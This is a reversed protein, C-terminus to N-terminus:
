AFVPLQAPDLVEANEDLRLWLNDKGTSVDAHWQSMLAFDAPTDPSLAEPAPMKVFAGSEYIAAVVPQGDITTIEGLRLRLYTSRTLHDVNLMRFGPGQDANEILRVWADDDSPFKEAHWDCLALLDAPADPALMERTPMFMFVGSDYPAVLLPQGHKTKFGRSRLKLYTEQTLFIPASLSLCGQVGPAQVSGTMQLSPASLPKVPDLAKVAADVMPKAEECIFYSGDKDQNIVSTLGTLTKSLDGNTLVLANYNTRLAVYDAILDELVSQVHRVSCMAVERPDLFDWKGSTPVLQPNTM